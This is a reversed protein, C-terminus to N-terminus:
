GEDFENLAEAAQEWDKEAQALQQSVQGLEKQVQYSKDADQYVEPQALQEELATKKSDLEDVLAELRDVERQLKRAQKQHAKANAYAQKGASVQKPPQSSSTATTPENPQNQNALEAKKAIYYDYDGLYLSSGDPTIELVSDALQNIFYRDHSVFLVTGDFERLAQELVEKSDIDLHNTPEDLILTNDHQLALKTLLLRAKEGGSLNHVIKKVDDGSFLFSGLFTRIDKEPMTPHEDWIQDLVTKNAALNHQEQDYYGLNVGTGWKITGALKPLQDLLTKLLTSKGIGNPGVVAMVQRKNLELNIPASLVHNDYGIALDDVKLVVNGSPKGAEFHFHPGDQASQPKALRDIKELQKRRAQARKTTSARVINKNVFDELQKIQTQQKEYDKWQKQLMAAKQDMFQSYNGTYHHLTKQDMDYVEHVIKDLFYRDHSVILLAGQYNQIYGELWTLTAIDLHNTPEDLILLDRKELLLKALALRTKQGGSLSKIPRAFSDEEFHFGHLVARIEADIGYGNQASFNHQAQDYQKLLAQYQSSQHDAAPNAIEEELHHIKAELAHLDAFVSDMEDYITKDSQLGTNQALYGITLDKAAIIQGADPQEQGILIKILTSKGAGNRGVLAIRADHNITLNVHDFLVDGGFNREIQHAQLLQM